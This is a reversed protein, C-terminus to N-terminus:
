IKFIVKLKTVNCSASQEHQGFVLLYSTKCQKCCIILFSDPFSYGRKDRIIEDFGNNLMLSEKDIIKELESIWFVKSLRNLAIKSQGCDVCSFEVPPKASDLWNETHTKSRFVTSKIFVDKLNEEVYFDM